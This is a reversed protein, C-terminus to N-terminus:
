PQSRRRALAATAVVSLVLAGKVVEVWYTPVNTLTFGNTLIAGFLAGALTGGINPVLRRSFIASIFSALAIDLLEDTGAGPITGHIRALLLLGAFGGTISSVLYACALYRRVPIGAVHAAARNGGIAYARLGIRTRHVVVYFAATTLVLIWTLVPVGAIKGSGVWNAVSNATTITANGTELSDVGMAIYMTALTVILPSLGVAAGIANVLGFGACIGLALAVAIWTADGGQLAVAAISASMGVVAGISVDIGGTVINGGGVILVATLGYAAVAVVAAQVTINSLNGWTLFDASRISFYASVVLLAAVGAFPLLRRFDLRFSIRTGLTSALASM